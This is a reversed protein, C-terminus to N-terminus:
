TTPRAARTKASAAATTRAWRTSTACAPPRGPPDAAGLDRLITEGMLKTQGYPNTASLPADETIPLRQPDGYVTASSSFVFRQLRAARMARCTTLLGGINNRTTTWRSSRRNAWRRSPRSTCWPTSATASSCRRCRRRTASAPASSCRCRRRGARQLRDLVGPSSNSFDDVGVVDFGAAAAGALHAVRHLRHRRDAPHVTLGYDTRLQLSTAVRDYSLTGRGFLTNTFYSDQSPSRSWFAQLRLRGTPRWSWDLAGFPGVPRPQHRQRLTHAGARVPRRRQQQRRPQASVKLELERRQFRDAEFVTDDLRRFNPYVGRSQRLGISANL